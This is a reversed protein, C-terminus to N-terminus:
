NHASSCSGYEDREAHHGGERPALPTRSHPVLEEAPGLLLLACAIILCPVKKAATTHSAAAEVPEAMSWIRMLPLSRGTKPCMVPMVATATLMWGAPAAAAAISIGTFSIEPM